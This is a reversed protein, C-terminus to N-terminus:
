TKFQAIEKNLEEVSGRLHTTAREFEQISQASRRAADAVQTM